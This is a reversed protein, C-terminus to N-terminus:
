IGLIQPASVFVKLTIYVCVHAYLRHIVVWPSVRIDIMRLSIVTTHAYFSHSCLLPEKFSHRASVNRSNLAFCTDCKLAKKLKGHSSHQLSTPLYMIGCLILAAHAHLDGEDSALFINMLIFLLVFDNVKLCLSPFTYFLVAQFDGCFM